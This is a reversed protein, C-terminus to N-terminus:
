VKGLSSGFFIHIVHCVERTKIVDPFWCNKSYWSICTYIANKCIIELHKLKKPTKLFQKLFHYCNQHHWCNHSSYSKNFYVYKSIFSIVHYNKNRADGFFIKDLLEFWLKHTNMHGFNPLKEALSTIMIEIKYPSSLFCWKKQPTTKTWTWYNPVLVLYPSSIKCWHPM